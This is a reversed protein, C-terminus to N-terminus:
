NKGGFLIYMVATVASIIAAILGAILGSKVKMETIDKDHMKLCKCVDTIKEKMEGIDERIYQIHVRIESEDNPTM